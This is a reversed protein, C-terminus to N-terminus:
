KSTKDVVNRLSSRLRKRSQLYSRVAVGMGTLGAAGGLATEPGTAPLPTPAPTPAPTPTPAPSSTPTPTSTPTSTSTPTPTPTPTATPTPTPTPKVVATAAVTNGCAKLIAWQFQGNKMSVFAEISTTGVAFSDQTPTLWLSGDAVSGNAKKQRGDTKANTAVVLGNVFVRGDNSVTGDVTANIADTTMGKGNYIAQLNAASNKTDGSAIKGTLESQTYAGCYVIANDDCDRGGTAALAAMPIISMLVTAVGLTRIIHKM